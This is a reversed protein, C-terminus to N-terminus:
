SPGSSRYGPTLFGVQRWRAIQCGDRLTLLAWVRSGRHRGTVLAEAPGGYILTCQMDSPVPAFPRSLEALRRCAEVRKPLTGRAPACELTWTRATASGRGAPWLRIRLETDAADAGSAAFALVSAAVAALV